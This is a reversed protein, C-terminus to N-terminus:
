ADGKAQQRLTDLLYEPDPDGPLAGRQEPDGDGEYGGLGFLIGAVLEKRLPKRGWFQLFEQEIEDLANDVIDAPDDGWVLGTEEEHLSSGDEGARWWGM